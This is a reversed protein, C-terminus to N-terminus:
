VINSINLKLRIICEIKLGTIPLKILIRNTSSSEGVM